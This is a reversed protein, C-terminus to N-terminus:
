PGPLVRYFRGSASKDIPDFWFNDATRALLRWAAPGDIRDAVRVHYEVAGSTKDWSLFVENGKRAVRLNGAEPPPPPTEFEFV